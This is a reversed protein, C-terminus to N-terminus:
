FDKFDKKLFREFRKEFIKSIKRKPNKKMNIEEELM